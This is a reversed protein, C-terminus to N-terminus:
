NSSLRRVKHRNKVPTLVCILINANGSLGWIHSLESTFWGLLVQLLCWQIQQGLSEHRCHSYPILILDGSDSEQQVPKASGFGYLLFQM